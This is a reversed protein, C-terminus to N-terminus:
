SQPTDIIHDYNLSLCYEGNGSESLVMKYTRGFEADWQIIGGARVEKGGEFVVFAEIGFGEWAATKPFAERPIANSIIDGKKFAVDMDPTRSVVHGGVAKDRLYYELHIGYIDSDCKNHINVVIENQGATSLGDNHIYRCSCCLAVALAIVLFIIRKM